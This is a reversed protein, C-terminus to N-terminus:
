ERDALRTKIFLWPALFTAWVSVLGYRVYRLIYGLTSEDVAISAFLVDLGFYLPLLGIVGVIYRAIRRSWIGKADFRAYRRMLSYGTITGFLTGSVTIFHTISRAESSFSSWEAPDPTGSILFRIILGILIVFISELFGLGIQFSLSKEDLWDRITGQWKVFGWLVLFGILWGFLVDHPFHMGLYLRSLGILFLIFAMAIWFWNRKVHTALYGGTALPNSAHSSPIGYSPEVSLGKVEGLWYPRPQHLLLKFSYAIFDAYILLLLTRFGIRRDLTWYIIPIFLLYFEIRGIFTVAEMFGDLAPSFTQLSQILRIGFQYLADM